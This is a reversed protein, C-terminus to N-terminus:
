SCVRMTPAALAGLDSRQQGPYFGNLHSGLDDPHAPQPTVLQQAALHQEPRGWVHRIGQLADVLPVEDQGARRRVAM